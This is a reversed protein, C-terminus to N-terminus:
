RQGPQSDRTALTYNPPTPHASIFQMVGQYRPSSEVPQTVFELLGWLGFKSWISIDTYQNMVGGGLGTWTAFYTEFVEKMRPHRNATLYLDTVAQQDAAPFTVTNDGLGSEYATLAVHYKAALRINAIIQEKVRTQIYTLMKDILQEPRLTRTVSANRSDAADGASFYPAISIADINAATDEYALADELFKTWASQGALIRVIRGADVGFEKQALKFIEVSRKAYFLSAMGQPTALGLTKSQQVAWQSQGFGSNWVENSYEIRPRLTPDLTAHLLAAFQKVYDDSAMHPITFWPHAHLTNALDIMVEVPVGRPTTYSADGVQARDAWEVVPSGNVVAWDMMRLVSFPAIRQLYDTNFRQTACTKETGPMLFRVNRVPDAPDSQEISVYMQKETASVEIVLRHESTEVIKTDTVPFGITGKGEWLITYRGAPYHANTWAVPAAASQGPLLRTPEGRTNLNPFPETWRGDATHAWWGGGSKMLDCFPFNTAYYALGGLNVGVHESRTPIEVAGGVSVLTTSQIGDFSAKVRTFGARVPTVTGSADITAVGMNASTWALPMDAVPKGSADFTSVAIRETKGVRTRVVPPLVIRPSQPEVPAAATALANAPRPVAASGSAAKGQECGALSLGILMLLVPTAAAVARPLMRM